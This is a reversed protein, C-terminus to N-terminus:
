EADSGGARRQRTRMPPLRQVTLSALEEETLPEVNELWKLLAQFYKLYFKHQEMVNLYFSSATM